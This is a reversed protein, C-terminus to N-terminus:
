SISLQSSSGEAYAKTLQPPCALLIFKIGAWPLAAHVPDYQVSTNVVEKFKEIWGVLREAKERVNIEKKGWKFKWRRAINERKAEMVDELLQKLVELKEPENTNDLRELDQKYRVPLENYAKTWLDSAELRLLEGM